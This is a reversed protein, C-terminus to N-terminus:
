RKFDLVNRLRTWAAEVEDPIDVHAIFNKGKPGYGHEDDRLRPIEGMLLDFFRRHDWIDTPHISAAVVFHVEPESRQPSSSDLSIMPVFTPCAFFNPPPCVEAYTHRFSALTRLCMTPDQVIILSEPMPISNQELVRRTEIANAGCNTSKDEVILRMTGSRIHEVLIPYFEKLIFRLVIAEPLGEIDRALYGYKRSQRVAEYLLRTSHGIGGCIVLTKALDPRAELVSFVNEAIPIIANGCLVLVDVPFCTLLSAIQPCSIFRSITNIDSVASESLTTM